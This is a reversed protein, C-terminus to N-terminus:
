CDRMIRKDEEENNAMHTRWCVDEHHASVELAKRGRARAMSRWPLMMKSETKLSRSVWEDSLRERCLIRGSKRRAAFDREIM